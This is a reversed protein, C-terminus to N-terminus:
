IEDLAARTETKWDADPRLLLRAAVAIAAEDGPNARARMYTEVARGGEAHLEQIQRAMRAIIPLFWRDRAWHSPPEVNPSATSGYACPAIAVILEARWPAATDQVDVLYDLHRTLQRIAPLDARKGFNMGWGSVGVIKGPYTAKVYAAARDNILAHYELDSLPALEPDANRGLDASQLSCGDFDFSFIYDLIRKQVDWAAPVAPSMNRADGRGLEPRAAIIKEFGWSYLGGGYLVKIGNAHARALLDRIRAVRAADATTEIDPEWNRDTFLGWLVIENFGSARMWAFTQDYDAMLAADIDIAPWRADPRPETALDRIWGLYSRHEFPLAPRAMESPEFVVDRFYNSGRFSQTPKAGPPGFFGANASLDGRRLPATLANQTAAFHSHVDVSVLYNANARIAVPAPLTATQWGQDSENEFSVSALIKGDADWIHGRHAGSESPAKWYRIAVICGAVRAEFATGLEYPVGDTANLALPTAGSFLSQMPLPLPTANQAFASVPALALPWLAVVLLAVLLPAFKM